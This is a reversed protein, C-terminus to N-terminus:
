AQSSSSVDGSFSSEHDSDDGVGDSAPSPRQAIGTAKCPDTGICANGSVHMYRCRTVVGHARRALRCGEPQHDGATAIPGHVIAEVTNHRRSEGCRPQSDPGSTGAVVDDSAQFRGTTTTGVM